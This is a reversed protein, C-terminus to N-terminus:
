IQALDPLNEKATDNGLAYDQFSLDVVAFGYSQMDNQIKSLIMENTMAEVTGNELHYYGTFITAPISHTKGSLDEPINVSSTDTVYSIGNDQMAYFTDQNIKGYPPVFVTPVVGLVSFLKDKAQRLLASQHAKDYLTFDEFSWGNIGIDIASSDSSTQDKIDGILKSDNGFVGAIVALTLSADKQKFADLIATQVNDLWYDQVNDLRFAVCNCNTINHKPPLPQVVSPMTASQNRIINFNLNTGDITTNYDAWSSGDKLNTVHFVYDGVKLNYFSAEGKSVPSESILKGNSDRLKVSFTGDSPSVVASQNEYLKVTILGNIIPPWPTIISVEQSIGPLLFVSSYSYSLTKGIKIDAMYHDSQDTTPSLWFRLTQGKADTTGTAWTKNDGSSITVTSNAIPTTKDNYLVNVRMGGSLPIAVDLTQQPQELDVYRVAAHMGNAYVEIKYQHGLPLSVINFPNGSLSEIERYPVQSNDQYIKMSIPWYDARDGNTYTM